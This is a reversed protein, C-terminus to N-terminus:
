KGTLKRKVAVAMEYGRNQSFYTVTIPGAIEWGDQQAEILRENFDKNLKPHNEKDVWEPGRVLWTEYIPKKM